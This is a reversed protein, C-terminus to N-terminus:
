AEPAIPRTASVEDLTSGLVQQPSPRASQRFYHAHPRGQRRGESSGDISRTATSLGVFFAPALVRMGASAMFLCSWAWGSLAFAQQGASSGRRMTRVIMTLLMFLSAMGFVGHEAVIRSFETHAAAYTVSVDRHYMAQGPGVGLVPNEAWIQLESRILDDRGTLSTDQFRALLTGGTLEDLRPIVVYDTIGFILVGVLGLRVRKRPDRVLWLFGILAAGAFTYLGGRSFTLASQILLFVMLVFMLLRFGRTVQDELMCFLTGLGALGLIASVQNPGFNGSAAKNSGATTDFGVDRTFMLTLTISAISLAPGILALLLSRRELRDLDVQSFFVASVMLALPGSLNFSIDERAISFDLETLPILASPLLLAFYGVAPLQGRLSLRGRVVLGLIFLAALLYKAFEYFLVPGSVRTVRWLVEAGTIYAGAYAIWELPRDRSIAWWLGLATVFFAHLVALQRIEYFIPGIVLHLAIFMMLGFSVEHRPVSADAWTMRGPRKWGYMQAVAVSM